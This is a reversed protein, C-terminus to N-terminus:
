PRVSPSAAPTEGRPRDEVHAMPALDIGRTEPLALVAVLGAVAVAVMAGALLTPSGGALSVLGVSIVPAPGALM